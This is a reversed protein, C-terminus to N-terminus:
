PLKTVEYAQLNTSLYAHYKFIDTQKDVLNLLFLWICGWYRQTLFLEPRVFFKQLFYLADWGPPIGKQTAQKILLYL